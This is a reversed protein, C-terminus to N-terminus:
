AGVGLGRNTGAVAGDYSTIDLRISEIRREWSHDRMAERRGERASPSDSAIAEKIAKVFGEATAAISILGILDEPLSIPTCILPIGCALAEYVKLPNMSNTLSNVRHPVIVADFNCIYGAIEGYPKVGVLRANGHRRLATEVDEVMIPGIFTFDHDPMADLIEEVLAVDFRDQICGAYGVVPRRRGVVGINRSADARFFSEDVANPLLKIKERSSFMTAQNANAVYVWDARGEIRRYAEKISDRYRSMETLESLDDIADFIRMRAPIRDAIDLMRPNALWLVDIRSALEALADGLEAGLRRRDIRALCGLREPVLSGLLITYGKAGTRLIRAAGHRSVAEFKGWHNRNGDYGKRMRRPLSEPSCVRIVRDVWSAQELGSAIMRTRFGFDSVEMVEELGVIVIDM